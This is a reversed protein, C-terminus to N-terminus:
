LFANYILGLVFSCLQCHLETEGRCPELEKRVQIEVSLVTWPLLNASIGCSPKAKKDLPCFTIGSHMGLPIITTLTIGLPIVM